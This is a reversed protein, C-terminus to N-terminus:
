GRTAATRDIRGNRIKVGIISWPIAICWLVPVAVRYVMPLGGHSAVAIMFAIRRVLPPVIILATVGSLFNVYFLGLPGLVTALLVALIVSRKPRVYPGIPGSWGGAYGPAGAAPAGHSPAGYAPADWGGMGGLSSSPTPNHPAHDPAHQPAHDPIGFRESM